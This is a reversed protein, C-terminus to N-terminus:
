QEKKGYDDLQAAVQQLIRPTISSRGEWSFITQSDSIGNAGVYQPAM